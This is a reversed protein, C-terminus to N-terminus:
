PIPITGKLVDGIGFKKRKKPPQGPQVPQGPAATMGGMAGMGRMLNAGTKFRVKATWKPANPKEAFHVEPGYGIMTVMGAPAAKAVEAPLLCESVSPALVAGTGVLRKVESPPLFDLHPFAAASKASTWMLVDGSGSAGFMALAYGTASPAPRWALRSAGSPLTGAEALELSPMFDQGAALAFGIPPSYNGQVKHAGALSGSAPVARSDKANPWEGYGPASGPGPRTAARAAMAALGPPVQGASLKSFDIVTPQNPGVHEGCGWYILMRGRPQQFGPPLGPTARVPPAAAPTVLPLSPGMALGAPPLHEAAPAGAPKQKSALRLELTHAVSSGGSMMGMIQAMDPRAGPTMGAGLGSQTAADMWYTAVPAPATAKKAPAAFAAMALAALSAGCGLLIVQKM